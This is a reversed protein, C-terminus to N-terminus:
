QLDLMSVPFIGHYSFLLIKRKIHCIFDYFTMNENFITQEIKKQLASLKVGSINLTM